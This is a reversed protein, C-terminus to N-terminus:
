SEAAGVDKYVNEGDGGVPELAGVDVSEIGM